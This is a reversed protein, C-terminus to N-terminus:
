SSPLKIIFESYSGIAQSSTISRVGQMGSMVRHYNADKILKDRGYVAGGDRQLCNFFNYLSLRKM